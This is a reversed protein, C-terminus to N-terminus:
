AKIRATMEGPTLYYEGTQKISSAMLWGSTGLVMVGSMLFKTRPKMRFRRRNGAYSYLAEGVENPRPRALNGGRRGVGVRRRKRQRKRPGLPGPVGKWDHCDSLRRLGGRTCAEQRSQGRSPARVVSGARVDGHLLAASQGPVVM